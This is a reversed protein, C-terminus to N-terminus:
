TGFFRGVRDRDLMDQYISRIEHPPTVCVPPMKGALEEQKMCAMLAGPRWTTIDVYHPDRGAAINEAKRQRAMDYLLDYLRHVKIPALVEITPLRQWETLERRARWVRGAGPLIAFVGAGLVLKDIFTRRNL